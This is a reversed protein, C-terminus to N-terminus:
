GPGKVHYREGRYNLTAGRADISEVAPGQALREGEHYRRGGVLIFSRGPVTSYLHGNITIAPADHPARASPAPVDALGSGDLPTDAYTVRGGTRAGSPRSAGSLRLAPMRDRSPPPLTASTPPPAAAPAAPPGTAADEVGSARSHASRESSPLEARGARPPNLAASARESAGPKRLVTENLPSDPRPGAADALGADPQELTARPLAPSDRSPLLLYALLAINCVVLVGVIWPLARSSGDGGSGGPEQAVAQLDARRQGHREREAKKLADVLYSM